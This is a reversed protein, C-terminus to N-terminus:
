YVSLCMSILLPILMYVSWIWMSQLPVMQGVMCLARYAIITAGLMVLIYPLNLLEYTLSDLTYLSYCGVLVMLPWQILMTIQFARRPAIGMWRAAVYTLGFRSIGPVFAIAQVFGLIIAKQMTWSSGEHACWRLSYLSCGTIAFGVALPVRFIGYQDKVAYCSITIIDAVATYVSIKLILPFCRNIHRFPLSWQKFFYVCLLMATPIHLIYAIYSQIPEYFLISEGAPTGVPCIHEFLLLHGSSSIPFSELIIQLITWVYFCIM